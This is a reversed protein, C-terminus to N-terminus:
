TLRGRRSGLEPDEVLDGAITTHNNTAMTNNEARALGVTAFGARPGDGAGAAVSRLAANVPPASAPKTSPPQQIPLRLEGALLATRHQEMWIVAYGVVARQGM